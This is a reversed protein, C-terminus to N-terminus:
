AVGGSDRMVGDEVEGEEDEVDGGLGRLVRMYYRAEELSEEVDARSEHRLLKVPVARLVREPAWRRVAEKISSM